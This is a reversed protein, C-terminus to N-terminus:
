RQDAENARARDGRDPHLGPPRRDSPTDGRLRGRVGGRGHAGVDPAYAEALQEDPLPWDGYGPPIPGSLEADGAYVKDIIEQRDVVLSLARRVNADTWPVDPDTTNLQIVRPAAFLGSLVTLEDDNELTQVVDASFTGGDVEGSRLAAVTTQEDTLVNLTLEEVCPVGPKWYNEFCTYVVRDNPVFEVLQFPGTGIGENLLNIRDAIGEPIIPTYRQWALVGPLTPDPQSMNIQVTYDDIVEVGAINALFAVVIGPEPPDLALEISYKVDKATMETGDHFLVGQRLNFTYSTADEAAEFSEALAPQINLDPDWELLSDYMFEKGWMNSTSVGGFPILNVPDSALAWSISGSCNGGTAAPTGDQRRTAASAPMAALLGGLVSTSVGLAAARTALDRRSIRGRLADALLTLGPDHNAM